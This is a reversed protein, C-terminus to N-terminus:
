AQITSLEDALPAKLWSILANIPGFTKWATALALIFYKIVTEDEPIGSAFM